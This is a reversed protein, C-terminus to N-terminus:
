KLPNVAKIQKKEKIWTQIAEEAAKKYVGRAAGFKNKATEKFRKVVEENISVTIRAM